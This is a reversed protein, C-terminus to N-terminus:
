GNGGCECLGSSIDVRVEPQQQERTQEILQDLEYSRVLEVLLRVQRPEWWVWYRSRKNAVVAIKKM